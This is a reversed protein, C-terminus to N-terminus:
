GAAKGAQAGGPSSPCYTPTGPPTLMTRPEGSDGTGLVAQRLVPM